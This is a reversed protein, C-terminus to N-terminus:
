LVKLVNQTHAVGVHIPPLLHHESQRGDTTHSTTDGVDHALLTIDVQVLAGSLQGSIFHVLDHSHDAFRKLELDRRPHQVPLAVDLVALSRLFVGVKQVLGQALVNLTHLADAKMTTQSVVPANAHTTLVGLGGSAM